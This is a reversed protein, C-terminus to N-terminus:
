QYGGETRLLVEISTPHVDDISLNHPIRSIDEKTFPVRHRGEKRGSLDITIKLDEPSFFRFAREDGSLTVTMERPSAHEITLGSPVNSYEVPVVFDRQVVGTSVAFIAWIGAALLIAVTKERWNHKIINIARRKGRPPFKESLYDHILPALREVDRLQFIEGDRAASIVGREESVVLCLADCREALGLAAAHRTGVGSLKELDKSLPLHAAFRVVRGGEIVVAGDHGPSSPDFISKLLSESVKGDLATGGELHRDMPDRGAVTIIAGTKARAMDSAARVIAEVVPLAEHPRKRRLGWLAIREFIHRIEEQFIVIIAILFVAFFGQLIATTLFLNFFRALAYIAGLFVMGVVVLYTRTRKFWLLGAYIFIAVIATDVFDVIDLSGAPFNM